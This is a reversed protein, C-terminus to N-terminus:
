PVIMNRTLWRAVAGLGAQVLGSSSADRWWLESDFNGFAQDLERKARALEMPLSPDVPRPASAETLQRIVEEPQKMDLMSLPSKCHACSAGVALNVPAGCNSCNVSQVHQRLEKVQQATLPRIFNKERLFEFFRIFRGHQPCRWYNFRVNRQLDQTPALTGPCRPCSMKGEFPAKGPQANEGILKMLRLTSAPALKLSEHRDFWFAQCEICIDIAVPTGQHGDLTMGTM